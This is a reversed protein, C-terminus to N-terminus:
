KVLRYLVDDIELMLCLDSFGHASPNAWFDLHRNLTQSSFGSVCEQGRYGDAQTTGRISWHLIDGANDAGASFVPLERIDIPVYEGPAKFQLVVFKAPIKVNRENTYNM